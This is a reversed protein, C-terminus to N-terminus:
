SRLDLRSLERRSSIGLKPYAKYLHHEVTRPSLFLAAAIERSSRGEAAMRVVQLEQPTLLDLVNAEAPRPLAVSAGAARLETRAREAWPTARLGEFTELASRLSTRADGRRRARRLWEGYLLETRAREFPRGARAHHRLAKRYPEERGTLLAGCRLAVAVAWDQGGARAWAEFRHLPQEAREPRGARVAAEVLDAVAAMLVATHRGPRRRATDFRGLVAEHDGIALDLLILAGDGAAGAADPTDEALRRCREEDGEIAAIRALVGNLRTVRPHMGTDRAIEVAEAVTAEADRHRGARVQAGALDQLLQPLAGIRGERRCRAVEATALRLTTADDGILMGTFAARARAADDAAAQEEAVFEALLPLGRAYDEDVLHAMGTVLPDPRGLDDGMRAAVRISDADGCFWAYGASTRLMAAARDPDARAAREILLRAAPRPEGLEFEVAARVQPLGAPEAFGDVLQGAQEALEGARAAQGAALALAAAEALRGARERPVPTFRAAQQYWGAAAAHGARRRAREAAEALGAAVSEDPGMTAAARHRIRSDPDNAAGALAEHVAVRRALVSGQYAATAILPHRFSVTDGAVRVLGATEAEALDGADVGFATAAGLLTPLHGRGEAAAIVLMLRTREPLGSIRARFSALVRDAVPLPVPGAPQDRQAAGFEVLALPNGASEAIVRDRRAPDLGRDALVRGADGDDLRGLRLETIGPAAFGEGRAAFVMAVGDEALRRAAFRLADATAQDLWHADDVVCLVPGEEALGALLSLVALGLLFRDQGARGSGLVARLAGAQPGSLGDIRDQLPWLLQVLGAFALDAEAEVGTMRLVRLGAESAQDAAWALLASKGIGLEGRLVLATSHGDGAAAISREIAAQEASRGYLM